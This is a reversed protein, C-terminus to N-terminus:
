SCNPRFSLLGWGFVDDKGPEGLDRVWQSLEQRLRAPDAARDTALQMAVAATLFPVAFSTGSQFRGGGPVATWLSVGPAAFDIYAGHNAYRYARLDPDIATAALVQPHAAPFAPRADAGGNGAAATITIGTALARDVAKELIKNEETELSLNLVDVDQQVM